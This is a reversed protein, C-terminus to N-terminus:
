SLVEFRSVLNNQQYYSPSVVELCKKLYDKVTVVDKEGFSLESCEKM